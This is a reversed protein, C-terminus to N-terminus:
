LTLNNPNRFLYSGVYILVQAVHYFFRSRNDVWFIFCLWKCVEVNEIRVSGNPRLDLLVFRGWLNFVNRPDHVTFVPVGRIGHQGRHVGLQPWLSVQLQFGALHSGSHSTERIQFDFEIVARALVPREFRHILKHVLSENM